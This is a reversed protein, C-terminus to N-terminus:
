LVRTLPTFCQSITRDLSLECAELTFNSKPIRASQLGGFKGLFEDAPVFVVRMIPPVCLAFIDVLGSYKEAFTRFGEKNTGAQATFSYSSTGSLQATSKVQIKVFYSNQPNSDFLVVDYPLGKVRSCKLNNTIMVVQVLLEGAEGLDANKQSQSDNYGSLEGGGRKPFLELNV